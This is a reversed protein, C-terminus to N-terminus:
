SELIHLLGKLPIRVWYPRNNIEYNLEYVCKELIFANLLVGLTERSAPLYPASGSRDLYARLYASCSWAYWLRAGAELSALRDQPTEEQAQRDFLAAQSAYHFSRIMGAVDRLPSRKIRREGLPRGPEGEFDVFVFDKGTYLAQGLHFDGHIRIRTASIKVASIARFRELIKGESDLVKQADARVPEPLDKLKKRLIPMLPTLRNRMSQYISRQYHPMLPEPAFDPDDKASALAAHLDATRRGLSRAVELYSGAMDRFIAPPAGEILKLLSERPVADPALPEARSLVAEFYRGLEDLTFTWADGQNPIFGNLIGLVVPEENERRYEVHGAVPPAGTFSTRETLFRGIELDPNTGAEVKRLFKLVFRDGYVVSSNSQEGKVPVPSLPADDGGRLSRYSPTPIMLIRSGDGGLQRRRGIGDLISASFAPDLAADYLLGADERGQGQVRLSAVVAEPTERRVQDAREGSAFALPLFYLQRDGEIFDVHFLALSARLGEQDLPVFDLMRVTKLTRGKGAFWRRSLLFPALSEELAARARDRFVAEWERPVEIVREAAPVSVEVKRPLAQELLFWYFAHPGLTLLYPAERVPPFETRGFLEVPICGKFRALDLEVYQVFRSLNAVVLITEVGQQRIFAFIKRNEPTLIEMRGRGFAKYRRSLAILRKMWWLLSHPNNQQAEVNVAEYHYEPDIGIPLFLKQPSARSFGANRDASWQMPTRVGNRDGLYINDGMGIEDGYYLIPTGPLSFLLGNLLEIKRRNNQLLPALRRRIGLNIRARPDHAYVRYMYDREEDTVMELTLEDHNRLFLAWQCADPIPPTQALIDILPYRDEMHVAMFMRPMIPFHFAMHCEDGRGFYAVADEPWQNAEALLLRNRFRADVHQRLDRLFAHTEPLNECSTGEREYLYPIADLRLGDVGMGLWFDVIKLIERRVDPSEINLDPQHSYFRHFYYSRAVPDWAWNSSEFDKFIIRADKYREPTDSWVYFRRHRSLPSARRARQFWAHQDSTHNFVLETVVRLGLRHAEHLFKRFDGMTGYSPHIDRYDSIDYGDDRLPSPYFPLLWLTDVGLHKLYPLKRTLGGFDGVGDSTSDHFARVHLEYVVADKYWLPSEPGEYRSM